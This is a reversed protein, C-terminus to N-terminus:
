VRAVDPAYRPPLPVRRPAARGVRHTQAKGNGQVVRRGRICWSTDSGGGRSRSQTSFAVPRSTTMLQGRRASLVHPRGDRSTLRPPSKPWCPSTAASSMTASWSARGRLKWYMQPRGLMMSPVFVGRRRGPVPYAPAAIPPPPPLV